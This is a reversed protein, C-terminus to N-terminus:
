CDLFDEAVEKSIRALINDLCLLELACLSLRDAAQIKTTSILSYKKKRMRVCCFEMYKSCVEVKEIFVNDSNERVTKTFSTKWSCKKRIFGFKNPCVTYFQELCHGAM